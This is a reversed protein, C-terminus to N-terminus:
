TTKTFQHELDKTSQAKDEGNRKKGSALYHM